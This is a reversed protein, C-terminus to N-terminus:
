EPLKAGALALHNLIDKLPAVNEAHHRRAPAFTKTILEGREEQRAQGQHDAGQDRQHLILDVRQNLAANSRRQEIAGEVEVFLALANKLNLRIKVVQDIDGGLTEAAAAKEFRHPLDLRTQQRNVLRVADALPAVVETGIVGLDALRPDLEARRRANGQGGGGGIQDPAVDHLLKLEVIGGLEDGAKVAGIEVVRHFLGPGVRKFKLSECTDEVFIGSGRDNIRRAALLALVDGFVDLAFQSPGGGDVVGAERAVFASPRLVEEHITIDLHNDGRVGEAHPDVFWVDTGDDMEANGAGQFSVVLLRPPRPAVPEPRGADQEIRGGVLLDLLPEDLILKGMGVINVAEIFVEPLEFVLRDFPRM